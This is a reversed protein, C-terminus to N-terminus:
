RRFQRRIALLFLAFLTSTLSVEAIALVRGWPYAPAYEPTKQFMATDISALLSNGFLRAEAALNHRAGNQPQWTSPWTAVRGNRQVGAEPLPFLLAFLVLIGVLWLMPKRYSNGYDSASRYLAVLGLRRHWWRRLPLLPGATPAALRKMEMEGYHFENATWYDLRADYNKKLQQYIQAIARYDREGDRQLQKGYGDHLPITEELIVAKRGSSEAWRASSTFWVGSVDCNHFFVRSLDVDDFVVEGPNAFTAFSFLASPQSRDRTPPDQAPPDEAHLDDAHPDEAHPDQTQDPNEAQFLTGRFAAKDLFRCGRWDALDHFNTRPFYAMDAFTSDGFDAMAAFTTKWFNAEQLFSVEWFHATEAFNATAFSARQAFKARTFDARQGFSAGDFYADRVFSAGSFQAAQHFAVPHFNAEEFFTSEAFGADQRFVTRSFDAKRAFTAKRFSVTRAFTSESFDVYQSFVAWDFHCLPKIETKQLDVRPFVFRRFYAEGSGAREMISDAEIWFQDFLPGEQKAPDKSHMLCVPVEDVGQPASHLPRGCPLDFGMDVPCGRIASFSELALPEESARGSDM